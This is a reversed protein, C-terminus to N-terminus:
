LKPMTSEIGRSKTGFYGHPRAAANDKLTKSFAKM